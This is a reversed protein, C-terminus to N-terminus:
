TLLQIPEKEEAFAYGTATLAPIVAGITGGLVYKLLPRTRLPIEEQDPTPHSRRVRCQALVPTLTSPSQKGTPAAM